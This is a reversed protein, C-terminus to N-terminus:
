HKLKKLLHEFIKVRKRNLGYSGYKFVRFTFYVLGVVFIAFTINGLGFYVLSVSYIIFWPVGVIRDWKMATESRQIAAELFGVTLNERKLNEREKRPLVKLLVELDEQNRDKTM